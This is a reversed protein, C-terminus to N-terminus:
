WGTPHIATAEAEARARGCSSYAYLFGKRDLPRFCQKALQETVTAVVGRKAVLDQIKAVPIEGREGVSRTSRMYGTFERGAIPRVM